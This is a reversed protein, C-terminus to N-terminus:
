KRYKNTYNISTEYEIKLNKIFLDIQNEFNKNELNEFIFDIIKVKIENFSFKLNMKKLENTILIIYRNKLEEIRQVENIIKENLKFNLKEKFNFSSIIKISFIINKSKENKDLVLTKLKEKNLENILTINNFITLIQNTFNKNKRLYLNIISVDKFQQNFNISNQKLYQIENLIYQIEYIKLEIYEKLNTEFENTIKSTENFNNTEEKFFRKQFFSFIGM